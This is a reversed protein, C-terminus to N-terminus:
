PFSLFIGTTSFIVRGFGLSGCYRRQPFGRDRVGSLTVRGTSVVYSVTMAGDIRGTYPQFWRAIDHVARLAPQGELLTARFAASM